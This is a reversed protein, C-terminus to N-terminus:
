DGRGTILLIFLLITTLYWMSGIAYAAPEPIHIALLFHYPAGIVELFYNLGTSRGVWDLLSSFVDTFINGTDLDVSARGSPLYSYPDSTNLQYNGADVDNLLNGEYNIFRPAQPNINIAAIQGLWLVVNVAMVVVFARTVSGM